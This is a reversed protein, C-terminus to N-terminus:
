RSPCLCNLCVHTADHSIPRYAQGIRAIKGVLEKMEKVHFFDKDTWNDDILRLVDQQYKDTISATITWTNFVLGVIILNHSVILNLWKDLAVACSRLHTISVGMVMCIAEAAAALTM